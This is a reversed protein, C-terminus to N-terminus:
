PCEVVREAIPHRRTRPDEDPYGYWILGVVTESAADIGLAEYFRAERTVAGTTWKMGVGRSWLYLAMNHIACACAAYDEWAQLDSAAHVRTVVLWGPIADWSEAKARAAEAGRRAAVLEHNLSVIAAKTREGIIYFRWPETLHHNPAWRALELAEWLVARSPCEGRFRNVTRRGAILGAADAAAPVPHHSDSIDAAM